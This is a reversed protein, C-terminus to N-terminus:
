AVQSDLLTFTLRPGNSTQRIRGRSILRTPIGYREALKVQGMIDDGAPLDPRNISIARARIKGDVAYMTGAIEVGDRQRLGAIIQRSQQDLHRDPIQDPRVGDYHIQGNEGNTQGDRYAWPVRSRGAAEILPTYEKGGFMTGQLMPSGPKAVGLRSTEKEHDRDFVPYEGSAAMSYMDTAHTRKTDESRAFRCVHEELDPVFNGCDPCQAGETQEMKGKVKQNFWHGFSQDAETPIDFDPSAKYAYYNGDRTSMYFTHTKKDYAYEQVWASHVATPQIGHAAARARARKRMQHPTHIEMNRNEMIAASAEEVYLKDEGNFGETHGVWSGNPNRTLTVYGVRPGTPTDISLPVQLQNIGQSNMYHRIATKSPMRINRDGAQYCMRSVRRNGELSNGRSTQGERFSKSWNDPLVPIATKKNNAGYADFGERWWTKIGKTTAPVTPVPLSVSKVWGRQKLLQRRKEIWADYKEQSPMNPSTDELDQPPAAYKRYGFEGNKQRDQTEPNFGM